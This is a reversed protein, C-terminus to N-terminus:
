QPSVRLEASLVLVVCLLFLGIIVAISITWMVGTGRSLGRREPERQSGVIMARMLHADRVAAAQDEHLPRVFQYTWWNNRDKARPVRKEIWGDTRIDFLLDQLAEQERKQNTPHDTASVFHASDLLSRGWDDRLSFCWTTRAIGKRIAVAKIDAREM